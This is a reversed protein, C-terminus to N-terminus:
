GILAYVNSTSRSWCTVMTLFPRGRRYKLFVPQIKADSTLKFDFDYYHPAICLCLMNSIFKLFLLRSGAIMQFRIFQWRIVEFFVPGQHTWVQARSLTLHYQDASVRNQCSDISLLMSTCDAEEQAGLTALFHSYVNAHRHHPRVTPRESARDTVHNGFTVRWLIKISFTFARARCAKM